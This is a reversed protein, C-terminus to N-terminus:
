MPFAINEFASLDTFLGSQQFMMGMKRRMQYLAADDLEHVLQGAVKVHGSQPRLQGGILRLLTSKGSGSTGLIAVVQGRPVKLNIGKLVENSGYAFRLGAVEILTASANSSM